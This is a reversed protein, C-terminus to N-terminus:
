SSTDAISLDPRVFLWCIAGVFYFGAHLYLIHNWDGNTQKIHDILRGVLPVVLIGASNGVCNVLGMVVGSRSGGVDIVAAWTCPLAMSSCCAGGAVILAVGSASDAYGSVMMLAATSLMAAISVGCRSLWKNGSARYIWDVVIGSVLAGLVVGFLPASALYGAQQRDVRYAYELFAPFFTVLLSYGAVKFFLQVALAAISIRAALRRRADGASSTSPLGDNGSESNASDRRILEVEGRNVWPHEEPRSRFYLYFGAAWVLGVLSYWRIITRWDHNTLLWATLAMTLASGISMSMAIMASATARSSVPFWDNVVKAQNPILGAQAVGFAFRSAAMAGLSHVAATVLTFGSWATCLIPLAVRAGWRQGLWGGPVQFLVYGLSFASYLIGFQENNIQLEQQITTNAAALCHRTLYAIAAALALLALVGFRVRTPCVLPPSPRGANSMVDLGCTM